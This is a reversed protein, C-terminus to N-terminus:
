LSKLVKNVLAMDCKGAYNAKFYKMVVPISHDELGLIITKIEEESLEKPLYGEITKIQNDISTVKDTRNGLVYSNREEKLEKLTKKIINLLDTDTLEKGKAKAEYGEVMYKNIVISYVARKDTDKNKLALMNEKKITDILM